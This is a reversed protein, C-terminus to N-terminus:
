ALSTRWPNGHQQLWLHVATTTSDSATYRTCVGVKGRDVPEQFM